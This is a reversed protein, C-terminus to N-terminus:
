PSLASIDREEAADLAKPKRGPRNPHLRRGTQAELGDLLPAAGLPRGITEPTVPVHPAICYKGAEAAFDVSPRIFEQM